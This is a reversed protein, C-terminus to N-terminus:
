ATLKHNIGVKRKAYQPRILWSRKNASRFFLWYFFFLTTAVVLAFIFWQPIVEKLNILLGDDAFDGFGFLCPIRYWYYCSVGCAAFFSILKQEYRSKIMNRLITYIALTVACGAIPMKYVSFFSIASAIYTEDPVHFWGWIFGPLGGVILLGSIRHWTTKFSSKPHINPTSDPCPKVCNACASCHANPLSKFINGGYLKEVPHIPCLGSCWASKWDYIFGLSIGTVAMSVLLLATAIGSTNFIAHRLPVIMYLAIVAVLNLKGAQSSSLKKQKSFGFHRPLLNTTALPCINRWLGTAVVLLAPAVPILINWFLLIGLAPRFLLCILIVVGILWVTFQVIRWILIYRGSLSGGSRFEISEKFIM